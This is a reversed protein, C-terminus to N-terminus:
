KAKVAKIAQQIMQQQLKAKAANIVQQQQAATMQPNKTKAAIVAQQIAQQMKAKQAASPNKLGKLQKALAKAQQTTLQVWTKPVTITNTQEILKHNNQNSFFDRYFNSKYVWQTKVTKISATKGTTTAVKNQIKYDAKTHTAEGKASLKYIYVQHNGATGVNQKLLMPMAANPSASYITTTKTTTVKHMGFHSNDNANVLFLSGLMVVGFVAILVGRLWGTKMMIFSLYLGLVGIILTAIIM